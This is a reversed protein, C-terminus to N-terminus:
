DQGRVKGGILVIGMGIFSVLYPLLMIWPFAKLSFWVIFISAVYTIPALFLGVFITWVGFVSFLVYLTWVFCVAGAAFWLIVGIVGITTGTAKRIATKISM